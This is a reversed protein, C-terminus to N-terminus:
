AASNSTAAHSLAALQERKQKLSQYIESHYDARAVALASERIAISQELKSFRSAGTWASEPNLRYTGMVKDIFGIKGLRELYFSLTIENFRPSFIVQPLEVMLDRRFMASSFNAILNLNEDAAFNRGTLLEPLSNYRSLLIRANRAEDLAEIKSFVMVADDHNRLFDMQQFNKFFDTWYDDGELIAVYEGAAETFAHRYNESIGANKKRSINRIRRPYKQAYREMIRATGDTSGDDSLLIEHIFDGSQSLASEIAEVVYKQHNYSLIVTSVTAKSNHKRHITTNAKLFSEKITIRDEHEQDTYDLVIFPLFVADKHRTFRICVDWDVLRRMDRDFGGFRSILSRHHVFVGLDIFNGTVLDDKNFPKGIVAGSNVHIAQAYFADTGRNSVIANAVASLFYPRVENDSDAYAIWPNRALATAINRASCVGTNEELKTYRIKGSLLEDPYNTRILTDTSDKSGDDVIVLEFSPHTQSLIADISRSICWARNHTPMIVSFAIDGADEFLRADPDRVAIAYLSPVNEGLWSLLRSPGELNKSVNNLAEAKFFPLGKELALVPFRMLDDYTADGPHVGKLGNEVAVGSKFGASILSETMGLGFNDHAYLECNAENLFDHFIRSSLVPKSLVMWYSQLHNVISRSDTAGWFDLCRSEMQRFMPAFSTVPGYCSDNCLILDDANDLLGSNHAWLAGRRYSVVDGDDRLGIIVHDVFAELKKQDEAGPEYACVMIVTEAVAKLGVLYPLVRSPLFGDSGRSVFVAMRRRNGEHLDHSSHSIM